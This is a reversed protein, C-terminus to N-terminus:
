KLVNDTEATRIGEPLCIWFRLHYHSFSAKDNKYACRSNIFLSTCLPYILDGLVTLVCLFSWFCKLILKHNLGTHTLTLGGIVPFVFQLTCFCHSLASMCRHLFYQLFFLYNSYFPCIFYTRIYSMFDFVLFYSFFLHPTRHLRLLLLSQVPHTTDPHNQSLFLFIFFLTKWCWTCFFYCLSVVTSARRQRLKWHQGSGHGWLHSPASWRQDFLVQQLNPCLCLQNLIPHLHEISNRDPNCRRVARDLKFFVFCLM